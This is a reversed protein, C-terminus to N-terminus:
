DGRTSGRGGCEVYCVRGRVIQKYLDYYQSFGNIAGQSQALLSLFTCLIDSRLAGGDGAEFSLEEGGEGEFPAATSGISRVSKIPDKVAVFSPLSLRM